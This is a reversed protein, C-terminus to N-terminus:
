HPPSPSTGQQCCEWGVAGASGHWVLGQRCPPVHWALPEMQPQLQAGPKVPSFQSIPSRVAAGPHISPIPIPLAPPAPPRLTAQLGEGDGCVDIVAQRAGALVAAGADILDVGEDAEAQGAVSAAATLFTPLTAHPLAAGLGGLGAGYPTPLQVWSGGACGPTTGTGRGVGPTGADGCVRLATVVVPVLELAM